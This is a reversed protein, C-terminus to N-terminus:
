IFKHHSQVRASSPMKITSLADDTRRKTPRAAAGARAAAKKACQSATAVFDVICICNLTFLDCNVM